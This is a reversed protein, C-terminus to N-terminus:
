KSFQIVEKVKSRLQLIEDKNNQWLVEVGQKFEKVKDKLHKMEQM